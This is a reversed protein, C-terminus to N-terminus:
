IDFSISKQKALKEHSYEEVNSAHSQYLVKRQSFLLIEIIQIIKVFHRVTAVHLVCVITPDSRTDIDEREEKRTM